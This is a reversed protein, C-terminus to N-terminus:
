QTEAFTVTVTLVGPVDQGEADRAPRFRYGRMVEDFKRAFKKDTIPPVVDIDTVRGDAGIQFNV